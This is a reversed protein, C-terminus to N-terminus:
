FWEFHEDGLELTFKISQPLGSEKLYPNDSNDFAKIPMKEGDM